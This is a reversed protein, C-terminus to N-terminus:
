ATIHRAQVLYIQNNRVVFEIDMPAQYNKEVEKGIRGIEQLLNEHLTFYQGEEINLKSASDITYRNPSKEGSVLAEGFGEIMEILLLDKQFPHETFMVGSYDANVMEQVVVSMRWDDLKQKSQRYILARVSYISAWCKRIAVFVEAIGMTNLFTDHQGAFTATASDEVIASSRVAVLPNDLKSYFSEINKKLDEPFPNTEFLNLITQSRQELDSINEYDIGDMIVDMNEQLKNFHMFEKYANATICFGFPVNFNCALEGLNAAKGGVTISHKQRLDQLNILMDSIQEKEIIPKLTRIKHDQTLSIGESKKRSIISNAMTLDRNVIGREADVQVVQGEKLVRTATHLGVICPIKLERSIIAAHCTIGGEDTLIASAKSMLMLINPQTMTTVLVDGEQFRVFDDQLGKVDDVKIIKVPGSVIGPYAVTGKLEKSDDVEEIPLSDIFDLAEKGTYFFLNKKSVLYAVCEMRKKKETDDLTKGLRLFSRIDERKHSHLFEHLTCGIRSAIEKLMGLALFECGAWYRKLHLREQAAWKLLDALYKLQPDNVNDYIIQQKKKLEKKEEYIHAIELLANEKTSLSAKFKVQFFSTIEKSDYTNWVLWPFQRVHSIILAEQLLKEEKYKDIIKLWAIRELSVEDFEEPTTLLVNIEDLKRKEPYIDSLLDRLRINCANLKWGFTLSFFTYTDILFLFFQEYLNDLELNSIKPFDIDELGYLFKGFETTHMKYDAKLVDIFETNLYNEGYKLLEQGMIDTYFASTVGEKSYVFYDIDYPAYKDNRVCRLMKPELLLLSHKETGWIFKYPLDRFMNKLAFEDANGVTEAPLKTYIISM